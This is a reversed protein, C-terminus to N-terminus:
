WSVGNNAYIIIKKCCPCIVDSTFVTWTPNGIQTDYGCHFCKITNQEM